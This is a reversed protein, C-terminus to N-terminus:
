AAGRPRGGIRRRRSGSRISIPRCRSSSRATTPATPCRPRSRCATSASGSTSRPWPTPPRPTPSSAPRSGFRSTRTRASVTEAAERENAEVFEPVSPLFLGVLHSRQNEFRDPSAFVVSPRDRQGDWKQHVDWLLGVTGRQGHIGVAPITVMNPHVVYRVQHPHGEAIDLTSSSVEDDVLWELGPFVAEDRDLAYLMPGDFALLKCPGSCTLEYEASICKESKALAFRARVQCAPEAGRAHVLHVRAEGPRREERSPPGDTLVVHERRAGDPGDLM